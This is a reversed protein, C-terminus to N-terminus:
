NDLLTITWFSGKLKWDVLSIFTKFALLKRFIYIKVPVLHNLREHQFRTLSMISKVIDYADLLDSRLAIWDHKSILLCRHVRSPSAFTEHFIQFRFQINSSVNEDKTEM